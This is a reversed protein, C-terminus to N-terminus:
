KACKQVGLWFLKRRKKFDRSEHVPEIRVHDLRLVARVLSAVLWLWPLGSSGCCIAILLIAPALYVKQHEMCAYENSAVGTLHCILFRRLIVPEASYVLHSCYVHGPFPSNAMCLSAAWEAWEIWKRSVNIASVRYLHLKTM